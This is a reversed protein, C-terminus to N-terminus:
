ENLTALSRYLLVCFIKAVWDYIFAVYIVIIHMEIFLRHLWSRRPCLQIHTESSGSMIDCVFFVLHERAHLLLSKSLMDSKM